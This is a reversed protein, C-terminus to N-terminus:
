LLFAINKMRGDTLRKQWRVGLKAFRACAAEIDDVIIAIRIAATPMSMWRRERPNSKFDFVHRTRQHALAGSYTEQTNRTAHVRSASMATLSPVCRRWRKSTLAALAREANRELKKSGGATTLAHFHACIAPIRPGSDFGETWIRIASPSSSM